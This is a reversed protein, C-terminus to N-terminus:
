GPVFVDGTPYPTRRDVRRLHGGLVPHHPAGDSKVDFSTTPGGSKSIYMRAGLQSTVCILATIQDGPSVPFNDIKYEPDTFWQWWLYHDQRHQQEHASCQM